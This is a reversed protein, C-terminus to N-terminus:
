GRDGAAVSGFSVSRFPVSDFQISDFQVSDFQVVDSQVSCFRVLCFLVSCGREFGLVLVFFSFWAIKKRVEIVGTGRGVFSMLLADLSAATRRRVVYLSVPFSM